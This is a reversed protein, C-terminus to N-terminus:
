PYSRDMESLSSEPYNGLDLSDAPRGPEGGAMQGPQLVASRGSQAMLLRECEFISRRDTDWANRVMREIRATWGYIAQISIARRAEGKVAARAAHARIAFPRCIAFRAM